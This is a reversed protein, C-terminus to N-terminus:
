VPNYRSSTRDDVNNGPEMPQFQSMYLDHYVGGQGILTKHTGREVIRGDQIVLVQDANHITSLRHAIVFSTLGKLLEGLAQQILRETRTDVSSTAEDLILIRPNALVARAFSILQRQGQSLNIGRENIESDYAEPLRSIYDHANVLRAAAEVEEDSADLRGYRINDAVTGSYLFPDQLVIGIQHRLSACTVQRIDLNDITVNGSQVDYFRAILNAITTKGAGTVGVLAITQGPEAVLSIDELVPEGDRYAFNVNEFAVRGEISPMEIANPADTLTVPEDLLEFIREGGALASQLHAYIMSVARIPEYFRRVYTLFTVILGVTALDNVVLYGGYGAVIATAITSMIDLTPSFASTIGVAEINADRNAASAQAFRAQSIEERSFAQVVKV